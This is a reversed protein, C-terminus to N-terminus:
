ASSPTTVLTEAKKRKQNMDFLVAKGPLTRPEKKREPIIKRRGRESGGRM